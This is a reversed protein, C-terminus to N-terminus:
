SLFTESTSLKLKLPGRHHLNTLAKSKTEERVDTQMGCWVCVSVADSAKTM